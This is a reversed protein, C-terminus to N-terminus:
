TEMTRRHCRTETYLTQVVTLYMRIVIPLYQECLVYRPANSDVILGNPKSKVRNSNRHGNQPTDTRKDHLFFNGRTPVFAPNEEREKTYEEHERRKREALTERKGGKNNSGQRSSTAAADADGKMDEFDIAEMKEGEEMLTLGNMMAETDSAKSEFLNKKPSSRKRGSASQKGRTEKPSRSQGHGNTAEPIDQEAVESAEGDGEDVEDGPHSSASDESLSDDEIEGYVSGDEEGEDEVRRRSAFRSRRHPAM